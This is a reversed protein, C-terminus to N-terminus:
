HAAQGRQGHEIPQGHTGHKGLVQELLDGVRDDALQYRVIRGDRCGTVTGGARSPPPVSMKAPSM